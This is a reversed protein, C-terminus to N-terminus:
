AAAGANAQKLSVVTGAQMPSSCFDAWDNMLVRRADFLDGRRYAAEVASGIAHALAQEVVHNAHRTAEAAWDRFTSRLGDVTSAMGTGDVARSLAMDTLLRGARNPFVLSNPDDNQRLAAMRELIALMPGTLPLRHGNPSAKMRAGPIRQVAEATDIEDWTTGRAEGSRLAGLTAYELCAAGISTQERLKEMFVGAERWDLATLHRVKAAKSPAPLMHALHGKWRAPNEGQRWQSATAYDLVTELRGRVRSGSEPKAQWLPTLIQMVHGTTIEAVPLDGVVPLIYDKLTQHWQRRHKANCWTHEHASLYHDAAKRFTVKSAKELAAQAKREAELREQEALPDIRDRIQKRLKSREERADALSVVDVGRARGLGKERIKGDFRYRFVWWALGPGRVRLTLGDGDYYRGLPATQVRKVTLPTARRPM